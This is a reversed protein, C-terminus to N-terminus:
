HILVRWVTSLSHECLTTFTIHQIEPAQLVFCHWLNKCIHKKHPFSLFSDSYHGVYVTNVILEFM